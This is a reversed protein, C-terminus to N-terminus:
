YVHIEGEYDEFRSKQAKLVEEPVNHIDKFNGNVRLVIVRYNYEKALDLYPKMEWLQTNTNSVIIKKGNKMLDGVSDQAWKHAAKAKSPDFQYKEDKVHYSDAEIIKYEAKAKQIFDALTSKGSGSHGRIIVITKKWTVGLLKNILEDKTMNLKRINLQNKVMEVYLDSDFGGYGDIIFKSENM